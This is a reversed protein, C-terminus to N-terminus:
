VPAVTILLPVKTTFPDSPVPATVTFLPPVKFPVPVTL